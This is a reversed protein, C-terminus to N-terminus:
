NPYELETKIARIFNRWLESEKNTDALANDNAKIRHEMEQRAKVYANHTIKSKPNSAARCHLQCVLELLDLTNRKKIPKLETSM